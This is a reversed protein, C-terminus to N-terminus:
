GVNVRVASKWFVRGFCERECCVECLVGESM